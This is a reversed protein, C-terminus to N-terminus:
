RGTLAPALRRWTDRPLATMGDPDVVQVCVGDAGADLHAQVRAAIAADDGWAFIGDVLRDSGGDALDDDSFGMRLLNGAYNPMVLYHRLFERALRRAEAADTALVVGQEPVLLEDPGLIARATATHDPTVNYPHAGGAREGALRLMVPGLAALVRREEPVPTPGRDLADLYARMAALPREYVADGPLREVVSDHSVGLGLLFRDGYAAVLRDREAAVLDAPRSWINLIGTGVVATHTALLLREVAALEGAGNEPIWISSYGLAELESAADAVEVPDRFSLGACWVGVGRVDM